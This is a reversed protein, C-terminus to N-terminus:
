KEKLDGDNPAAPQNTHGADRARGPPSKLVKNARELATTLEQRVAALKQKEEELPDTKAAPPLGLIQRSRDLAAEIHACVNECGIRDLFGANEMVLL